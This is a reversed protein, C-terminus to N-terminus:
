HDNTMKKTTMNTAMPLNREFGGFIFGTVCQQKDISFENKQPTAIRNSKILGTLSELLVGGM